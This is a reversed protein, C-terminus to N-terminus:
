GAKKQLRLMVNYCEPDLFIERVFFRIKDAETMKDVQITPDILQPALSNAAAKKQGANLVENFVKLVADTNEDIVVRRNLSWKFTAEALENMFEKSPPVGTDVSKNVAATLKADLKDLAAAEEKQVQFVRARAKEVAPLLKGIQEKTLVLPILQNLMDIQRMKAMIAESKARQEPTVQARGVHFLSFLVAIALAFQKM